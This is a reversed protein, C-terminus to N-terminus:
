VMTQATLFKGRNPVDSLKDMELAHSVSEISFRTM